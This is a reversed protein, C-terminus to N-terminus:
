NKKARVQSLSSAVGALPIFMKVKSMANAMNQANQVRQIKRNNEVQQNVEPTNAEITNTEM